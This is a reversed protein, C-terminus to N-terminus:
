TWGEFQHSSILKTEMPICQAKKKTTIFAHGVKELLNVLDTIVPM